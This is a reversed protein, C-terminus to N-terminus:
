AARNRRVRELLTRPRRLVECLRRGHGNNPRKGNYLDADAGARLLSTAAEANGLSAAVMLATNGSADAADLLDPLGAQPATLDSELILELCPASGGRAADHLPTGETSRLDDQLAGRRILLGAAADHGNKCAERLCSLLLRAYHRARSRLARRLAAVDGRQSLAVVDDERLSKQGTKKLLAVEHRLAVLEKVPDDRVGRTQDKLTAGRKAERTRRQETDLAAKLRAIERAADGLQGKLENAREPASGAEAGLSLEYM